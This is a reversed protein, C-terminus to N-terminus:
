VFSAGSAAWWGTLPIDNHTEDETWTIMALMVGRDSTDRKITSIVSLQFAKWTFPDSWRFPHLKMKSPSSLIVPIVLTHPPPSSAAGRHAFSLKMRAFEESLVVTKLSLLLLEIRSSSCSQKVVFFIAIATCCCQFVNKKILVLFNHNLSVTKLTEDM